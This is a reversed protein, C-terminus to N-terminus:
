GINLGTPGGGLPVRFRRKGTARRAVKTKGKATQKAQVDKTTRAPGTTVQAIPAPPSPPPPPRPPPPPPPPPPAMRPGGGICMLINLLELM